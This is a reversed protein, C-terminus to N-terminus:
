GSFFLALFSVVVKGVWGQGREKREKVIERVRKRRRKRRGKRKKKRQKM